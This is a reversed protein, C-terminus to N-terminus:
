HVQRDQFVLSRQIHQQNAAPPSRRKFPLVEAKHQVQTNALDQEVSEVSIIRLGVNSSQYSIFTAFEELGQMINRLDLEQSKKKMNRGDAETLKTIPNISQKKLDNKYQTLEDDLYKSCYIEPIKGPPM